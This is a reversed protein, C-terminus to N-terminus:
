GPSKVTQSSEFSFFSFHLKKNHLALVYLSIIKGCTKIVYVPGHTKLTLDNTLRLVVLSFMENTTSHSCLTNAPM